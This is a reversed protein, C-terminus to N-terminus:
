TKWAIITGKAKKLAEIYRDLSASKAALRLIEATTKSQVAELKVQEVSLKDYDAESFSGDCSIDKRTCEICKSSHPAFMYRAGSRACASCAVM